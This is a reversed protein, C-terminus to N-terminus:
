LLPIGLAKRKATTAAATNANAAGDASAPPDGAGAIWCYTSCSGVADPLGGAPPPVDDCGVDEVDDCAVAEVDDVGGAADVPDVPEDDEDDVEGDAVCAM